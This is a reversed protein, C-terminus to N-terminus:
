HNPFMMKLIELTGENLCNEVEMEKGERGLLDENGEVMWTQKNIFKLEKITMNEGKPYQGRTMLKIQSEKKPPNLKSAIEERLSRLTATPSIKM